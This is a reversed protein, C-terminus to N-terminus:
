FNVRNIALALDTTIPPTTFSLVNEGSHSLEFTGLSHGSRTDWATVRYHGAGPAPIQLSPCRAEVDTQLMGEKGLTDQRLLWIVAQAEDGCGFAVFAPDSLKIEENWNRRQFQQWDILSLFGALARQASRMGPTLSHPHRNPWRMGGGAGGSAFHAWQIHRFYEDDFPEPLTTRRDNFTHIPGHESDFFPRNDEIEAISQRTLRGASIAPEVTNKPHDITNREYFHISAFDLTPHRFACATIRPDNEFGFVSVTQPHARGHLRLETKRLFDSIDDVFEALAEASDEAHAPHLENWLDWAFLAGSGGWRETAFAFRQKIAARTEACLLWRSREACPGGNGQRYPHKSWRRWMWFTDFPTLLIRLHYKECLTFLDDWLRIMNPQFHGAPRELYRHERHCYELMLRLCTVGHHALMSLYAEVSALNRRRFGGALDPWTIADNQGIPTWDVGEETIFYPAGKAVEIWPMKAGDTHYSGSMIIQLQNDINSIGM